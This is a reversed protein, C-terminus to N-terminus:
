IGVARSLFGVLHEDDIVLVVAVLACAQEMPVGSQHHTFLVDLFILGMRKVETSLDIIVSSSTEFTGIVINVEWSSLLNYSRELIGTDILDDITVSVKADSVVM